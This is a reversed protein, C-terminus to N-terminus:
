RRGSKCSKEFGTGRCGICCVVYGLREGKLVLTKFVQEVPQGLQSAVHVGSLDNEDVEYEMTTYAIKDRDLLRMANTKIEKDDKKNKGM